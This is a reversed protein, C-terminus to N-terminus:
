PRYFFRVDTQEISTDRIIRCAGTGIAVLIMNEKSEMNTGKKQNVQIIGFLFANQSEHSHSQIRAINGVSVGRACREM